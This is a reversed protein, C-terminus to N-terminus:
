MHDVVLMLSGPATTTPDCKSVTLTHISPPLIGGDIPKRVLGIFQGGGFLADYQVSLSELATFNTLSGGIYWPEDEPRSMYEYDNWYDIDLHQVTGKHLALSIVLQHPNVIDISSTNEEISFTFWRLSKCAAVLDRAYEPPLISHKLVM